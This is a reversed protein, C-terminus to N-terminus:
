EQLYTLLRDHVLLAFDDKGDGNLDEVLLERPEKQGGKRGRYHMNEDFVHFHLVSQWAKDAPAYRLFEILHKTADLALVDADGDADFDGFVASSYSVDKLDTQHRSTVSMGSSDGKLPITWFASKGFALLQPRAPKGLKLHVLASLELEGVEISRSYRFVEDKARKLVQFAGESPVYFIAESQGDGDLDLLRPCRVDEDGAKANFQDLVKLDGDVLGVARVFGKGGVLLDDRGDQNVDGWGLRSPTLGQLISKRVISKEAAAEFEGEEDRLLLIAPNRGSLILLDPDDDGDLDRILLGSPDRELDDLDIPEGLTFVGKDNAKLSVLRYDYKKKTVLLAEELGDGDLDSCAMAVTDDEIALPEPFGFRKGKQLRCVGVMGEEESSVLLSAKGDGDFDGAALASVGRLFPFSVSAEFGGNKRGRLFRLEAQKPAVATLDLHGDGDFDALAHLFAGAKDPFLNRIRPQWLNKKGEDALPQRLRFTLLESSDEDISAFSLEDAAVPVSKSSSLAHATLPHSTESLFGSGSWRLTRLARESDPVLYLFDDSGDGDYDAFRFGRANASSLKVVKTGSKPKRGEFSIREFGEKSFVVLEVRGDGDLDRVALSRNGPVPDNADLELPKSWSDDKERFRVSVGEGSGGYILDPRGDLDLDELALNAFDGDFAVTERLYPADELDPEWRDSKTSRVRSVKEGPKRRYLIDIRAREPNVVALDLKGDGNLDKAVMCKANWDLKIVEPAGFQFGRPEAEAVLASSGLLAAVRFTLPNM